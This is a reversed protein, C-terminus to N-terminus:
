KTVTIWAKVTGYVDFRRIDGAADRFGHGARAQIYYTGPELLLKGRKEKYGATNTFRLIDGKGPETGILFAPEEDVHWTKGMTIVAKYSVEAPCGLVLRYEKVVGQDDEGTDAILTIPEAAAGAVLSFILLVLLATISTRM